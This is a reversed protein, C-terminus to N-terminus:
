SWDMSSSEFAIFLALSPKLSFCCAKWLSSLIRRSGYASSSRYLRHLSVATTEPIVLVGGPIPSLSGGSNPSSPTEQRLGSCRKDTKYKMPFKKSELSDLTSLYLYENNTKHYSLKMEAKILKKTKMPRGKQFSNTRSRLRATLIAILNLVNKKVFHGPIFAANSTAVITRGAVMTCKEWVVM